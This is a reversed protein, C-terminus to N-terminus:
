GIFPNFLPNRWVCANTATDQCSAELIRWPTRNTYRGIAKSGKLWKAHGDAFAFSAGEFHPIAYRADVTPHENNAIRTWGNANSEHNNRSAYDWVMAVESPRVVDALSNGISNQLPRGYRDNDYGNIAGNYAYQAANQQAGTMDEPPGMSPCIFVNISKVYPFILDMWTMRHGKDSISFRAGPTGPAAYQINSQHIGPFATPYREDYDQTYQMIGLGIQKLNSICSTRRANERARSFVPFLISALISIIAIVVLLEILTFATASRHHRRGQKCSTTM